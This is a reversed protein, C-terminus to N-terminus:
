KASRWGDNSKIISFSRVQTTDPMKKTPDRYYNWFPTFGTREVVFKIDAANMGSLEHISEVKKFNVQCTKFSGTIEKTTDVIAQDAQTKTKLYKKGEDSLSISFQHLEGMIESDKKGLYKITFMGVNQLEYYFKPLSDQETSITGYRITEHETIPFSYKEKIISEAKSNTLNEGCGTTFIIAIAFIILRM